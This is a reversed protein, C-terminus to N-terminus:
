KSQWAIAGLRKAQPRRWWVIREIAAASVAPIPWTGSTGANWDHFAAANDAYESGPDARTTFDDVAEHNTRGRDLAARRRKGYSGRTSVDHRTGPVTQQFSQAHFQVKAFIPLFALSRM